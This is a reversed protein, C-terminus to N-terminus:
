RSWQRCCACSFRARITAHGFAGFVRGMEPGHDGVTMGFHVIGATDMLTAVNAAAIGLLLVGLVWRADEMTRLAYFSALLMLAPDILRTKLTILGSFMHYGPYHIVGFAAIWALGAYSIFAVFLIHIGPLEVQINGGLATRWVLTFGIAYLLANKVSIGTAVSMGLGFVAGIIFSAILAFFLWRM